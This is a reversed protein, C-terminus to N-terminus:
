SGVDVGDFLVAVPEEMRFWPAWREFPWVSGSLDQCSRSALWPLRARLGLTSSAERWASTVGRLVWHGPDTHEHARACCERAKGVEICPLVPLHGWESVAVLVISGQSVYAGGLDPLGARRPALGDFRWDEHRGAAWIYVQIRGGENRWLLLGGLPQGGSSQLTSEWFGLHGNWALKGRHRFLPPGTLRWPM